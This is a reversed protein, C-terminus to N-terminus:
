HCMKSQMDLMSAMTKNNKPKRMKRTDIQLAANLPLTGFLFVLDLSGPCSPPTLM